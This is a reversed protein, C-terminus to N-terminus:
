GPEFSIDFNAPLGAFNPARKETFSAVGEAFDPHDALRQMLAFTAPQADAFGLGGDRYVQRKIALMSLPSCHRAVDRAWATAAPVLEDPECVRSVLGIAHAEEGDIVRASLLLDLAREHGVIRPLLWATGYEAVLGRRAYATTIRAGRAAFRVDSILAQVLGIGACAGNIAAVMPKRLKLADSQPRRHETPIAGDAAVARLQEVDLGPCFASGAGTLVVARVDPDDDARDIAAFYEAEMAYTWANHREPRNFTITAVGEAVEYRIPGDDSV